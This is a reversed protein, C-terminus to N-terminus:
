VVEVLRLEFRRGGATLMIVPGGEAETDVAARVPGMDADLIAGAIRETIDITTEDSNTDRQIKM